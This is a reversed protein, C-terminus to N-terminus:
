EKTEESGTKEPLVGSKKLEEVRREDALKKLMDGLKKEKPTIEVENDNIKKVTVGGGLNLGVTPNKGEGSGGTKHLIELTKLYKDLVKLDIENIFREDGSSIYKKVKKGMYEQWGQSLTLLFDQSEIKSEILRSSLSKEVDVLYERRAVYWQFKKSLYMIVPKAIRMASSIQVYTKGSLYLDMMQTLKTEDIGAIGPLGDNQFKEILTIDKPTFDSLPDEHGESPNLIQIKKENESM